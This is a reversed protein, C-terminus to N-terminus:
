DEAPRSSRGGPTLNVLGPHRQATLAGRVITEKYLVALRGTLVYEVPSDDARVYQVLADRRGLSICQNLYRFRLGRAPRGALRDDLSRAVHAAAPLGTACAMRLEQGDPRRAAAADGIAYVEPHSVSRLAADVVMRGHGDVAFGATRALEPVRFGAAWVVTDADLRTGDDLLAGSPGVETVRVGDRVEVGLRAFVRRLHRRGRASLGAGLTGGPLLRVTVDPRSEALEAAAEIGTLGGGVVAVSSGGGEALRARLRRADEATAVAYAHEAAGPVAHTAAASGLAYVLVDYGLRTGDALEAKRGEADIREVRGVVFEVPDGALLEAVTRQRVPQGAAVQHLRVREVFRDGANVLTVRTGPRRAILKAAVLGSYGAGLVLVHVTM